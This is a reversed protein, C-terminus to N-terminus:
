KAFTCNCLKKLYAVLDKIEDATLTKGSPPMLPSKANAPGGDTIANTVDAESLKSMDAASTHNRPTVAMDKTVNIGDGKGTLGHCQSCYWKYNEEASAAFSNSGWVAIVGALGAVVFFARKIMDM